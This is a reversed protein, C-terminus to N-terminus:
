RARAVKLWPAGEHKTRAAMRAFDPPAATVEVTLGAARLAEIVAAQASGARTGALARSAAIREPPTGLEACAKYFTQDDYGAKNAGLVMLRAWIAELGGQAQESVIAQIVAGCAYRARVADKGLEAGGRVMACESASWSLRDLLDAETSLGLERVARFALLEAGGEHVWDPGKAELWHSNWLHAAEHALLHRFSKLVAPDFAARRAEGLRVELQVLGDLTGGGLSVSGPVDEDGYSLFVTPRKPLAVGFTKAYLDFLRPLTQRAERDLWEPMGPDVVAVLAPEDVPTLKGFAAYTGEGATTSWEIARQSARGPLVATEGALPKFTYRLETDEPGVDYQGTYVLLGGGSLAIYPQYDKEPLHRYVRAILSVRDFPAPAVLEDRGEGSTQLAAGAPAILQLSPLRRGDGPRTFALRTVARSLRLELAFSGPDRQTLAADVRLRAPDAAPLAVPADPRPTACAAILALLGACRSLNM